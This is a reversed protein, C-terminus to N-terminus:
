GPFHLQHEEGLDEVSAVDSLYEDFFRLPADNDFQVIEGNAGYRVTETRAAMAGSQRNLEVGLAIRRIDAVFDLVLVVNKDPSIRLGRGLQQVFVKRSHTVRMFAVLNVEPLDIGENLMDISLLLELKGQRFDALNKFKIERPLRSHLVASRIGESKFLELLRDAHEISRCFALGQPKELEALKQCVTQVIGLDREPILLHRNLDKVTLGQETARSVQDWDIGDTLMRYDVQALFGRQMGEILGFTYAPEGFVDEISNDDSRWPTATLGVLFNPDLERLLLSYGQAPARHAEDVIILGYRSQLDEENMRAAALSQWTAFVVGGRYSPKERDAWLHTSVNKPIQPWSSIELQRVLQVKDAVVLVEQGPNRRLENAILQNAVMSKGLGTAMVVLAKRNGQGRAREVSDIAETQYDRLERRKLSMDPLQEFYNLLYTGDWLRIDFGKEEEIAKQKEISQAFSANTALVSVEAGYKAAADRVKIVDAVKSYESSKTFKSQIVWRKGGFVGVVDAGKDNPGGVVEVDTFGSHKLLRALTRELAEWSGRTLRENSIFGAM